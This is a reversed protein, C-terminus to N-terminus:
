GGAGAEVLIQVIEPDNRAWFRASDLPSDGRSDSAKVDVGADVLIRVIERNGRFIAEHLLPDGDSDRANVDAGANVLIRVVETISGRWVPKM